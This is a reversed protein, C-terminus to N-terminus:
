LHRGGETDKPPRSRGGKPPSGPEGRAAAAGSRMTTAAGSRTKVVARHEFTVDVREATEGSAALYALVRVARDLKDGFPGEGVVITVGPSATRLVFGRAPDVHLESVQVPLRSGALDLLGFAEVLRAATSAPDAAVNAVRLGTVVPLDAEEGREVPKVIRGAADAFYLRDLQVLLAPRREGVELVLRAPLERRAVVRDVWPHAQVRRAVEGLDLALLSAGPRVRALEVVAQRTLHPAAGDFRVEVDRVTFTPLAALWRATLVIAVVAVLGAGAGLVLGRRTTSTRARKVARQSM